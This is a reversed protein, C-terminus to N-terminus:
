LVKSISESLAKQEVARRYDGDNFVELDFEKSARARWLRLTNVTGTAFGAVPYDYPTGVIKQGDIWRHRLRGGQRFQEVRGGVQVPVSQEPRPIEWPNGEVLWADPQEQQWGDVIEQRFIGYEYRIGYGYGALGLTAMSDLFCAALRGLGGNGLGPDPEQEIVDRLELGYHALEAQAMDYLGLNILNSTLFRGMLFEASLYYVRKPNKEGYTRKTEMWRAMLRDRVTFAFAYYVDLVTATSRVKSRSFKLHDLVARRLTERSMGTRDDEVQIVVGADGSAGNM